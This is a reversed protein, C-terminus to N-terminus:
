FTELVPEPVTERGPEEGRSNSTRLAVLAAGVLFISAALLARGYGSTLADNTSAHAAVLHKTRATALASFVALGLAVGLQLSTNILGAALGAQNAPVGANAAVTAGVFIAGLGLAMVVLGPLLDSAYHGDVPIRSLYYIAGASLMAGAVLVPRTGVRAFLKPAISASMALFATV